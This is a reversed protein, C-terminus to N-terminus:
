VKSVKEVTEIPSKDKKAEKLASKIIVEQELEKEIAEKLDDVSLDNKSRNALIKTLANMYVIGSVQVVAHITSAMVATGALTGLGPLLKLISGGLLVGASTSSLSGAITLAINRLGPSVLPINSEKNINIYMSLITASMAMIDVGPIPVVSSAVVGASSARVIRVLKQPLSNDSDRHHLAKSLETAAHLLQETHEASM